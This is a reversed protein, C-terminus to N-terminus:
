VLSPSFGDQFKRGQVSVSHEETPVQRERFGRRSCAKEEAHSAPKIFVDWKCRCRKILQLTEGREKMFCCMIKVPEHFM